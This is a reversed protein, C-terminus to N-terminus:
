SYPTVEDIAAFIRLAEEKDCGAIKMFRRFARGRDGIGHVYANFTIKFFDGHVGRIGGREEHRRQTPLVYVM